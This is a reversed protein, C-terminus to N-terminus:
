RVEFELSESEIERDWFDGGKPPQYAARVRFRGSPPLLDPAIRLSLACPTSVDLRVPGHPGRTRCASHRLSSAPIRVLYPKGQPDTVNLRILPLLDDLPPLLVPAPSATVFRVTLDLADGPRMRTGPTEAVLAVVPRESRAIWQLANDELPRAAGGSDAMQHGTLTVRGAPSSVDVKGDVVYVMSADGARVGFRTGKVAIETGGSEVAFGRVDSRIDAFLEGRELRVRRPSEFVIATDRNLKLTGVDPLTLLAFAPTVLREHARLAYGPEIPSGPAVSAVTAVRSPRLLTAVFAFSFAAALIGAAAAIKVPGTLTLKRNRTERELRQWVRPGPKIEDISFLASYVSQESRAEAACSRCDRLHADVEDSERPDLNGSRRAPLSARIDDCNM